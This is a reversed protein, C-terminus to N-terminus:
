GSDGAVGELEKEGSLKHEEPEGEQLGGGWEAEGARLM